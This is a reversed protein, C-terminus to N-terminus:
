NPLDIMADCHKQFTEGGWFIFFLAQGDFRKAANKSLRLAIQIFRGSLVASIHTGASHYWRQDGKCPTERYTLIIWQEPSKNHLEQALILLAESNEWLSLFFCYTIHYKKLSLNVVVHEVTCNQVGKNHSFVLLCIGCCCTPGTHMKARPTCNQM